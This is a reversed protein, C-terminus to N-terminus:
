KRRLDIRSRARTARSMHHRGRKLWWGTVLGVPVALVTWALLLAATWEAPTWGIPIM